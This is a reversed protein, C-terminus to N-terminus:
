PEVPSGFSIGTDGGYLITLEDVDVDARFREVVKDPGDLMRSLYKRVGDRGRSVEANHWTVVANPHFYALQRELDGKSMADLLGDRLARLENHTAEDAAPSPTPIAQSLLPLSALSLLLLAALPRKM